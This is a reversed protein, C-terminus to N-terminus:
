KEEISGGQSEVAERAGKTVKAVAITLKRELGENGLLKVPHKLKAIIGVKVLSELTVKEGDSFCNVDRVKVLHYEKMSPNKFGYKPLRRYLPTQGGEFGPAVGGGKRAKQGKHGKGSTKGKGSGPGRGIRKSRRNSGSEAFLNSLDQM